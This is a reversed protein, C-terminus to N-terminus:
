LRCDYQSVLVKTLAVSLPANNCVFRDLAMGGQIRAAAKIIKSRQRKQLVPSTPCASAIHM